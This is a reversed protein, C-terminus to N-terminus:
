GSTLRRWNDYGFTTDKYESEGATFGEEEEVAAGCLYM